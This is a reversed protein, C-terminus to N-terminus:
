FIDAFELKMSCINYPIQTATDIVTKIPTDLIGCMAEDEVNPSPCVDAWNTRRHAYAPAEFTPNTRDEVCNAALADCYYGYFPNTSNRPLINVKCSVCTACQDRSSSGGFTWTNSGYEWDDDNVLSGCPQTYTPCQTDSEGSGADVTEEDEVGLISKITEIFNSIVGVDEDDTQDGGDEEENEFREVTTSQLCCILVVVITIVILLKSLKM